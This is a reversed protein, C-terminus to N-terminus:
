ASVRSKFTGSTYVRYTHAHKVADSVCPRWRDSDSKLLVGEGVARAWVAGAANTHTPKVKVLPLVDDIHVYQQRRAVHRIAAALASPYDSGSLIEAFEAEIMGAERARFADALEFLDM